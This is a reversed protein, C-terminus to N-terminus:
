RAGRAVERQVSAAITDDLLDAKAQVPRELFKTAKTGHLGIARALPWLDDVSDFVFGHDRAWEELAAPPPMRAGPTRGEHIVLAYKAALGGFGIVGTIEQTTRRVQALAEPEPAATPGYYTLTPFAVYASDRLTGEWRPVIEQAEGVVDQSWEYMGREVAMMVREGFQELAAMVGPIGNVNIDIRDM